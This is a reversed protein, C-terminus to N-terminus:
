CDGFSAWSARLSPIGHSMPIAFFASFAIPDVGFAIGRLRVRFCSQTKASGGLLSM